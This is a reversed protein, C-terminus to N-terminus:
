SQLKNVQMRFDCVVLCSLALISVSLEEQEFPIDELPIQIIVSFTNAPRLRPRLRVPCSRLRFQRLLLASYCAIIPWFTSRNFTRIHIPALMASWHQIGSSNLRYPPTLKEQFIVVHITAKGSRTLGSITDPPVGTYFLTSTFPIPNTLPYRLSYLTYGPPGWYLISIYSYSSYPSHSSPASLLRPQLAFASSSLICIRAGSIM